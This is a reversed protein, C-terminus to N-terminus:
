GQVWHCVRGWFTLPARRLFAFAGVGYLALQCALNANFIEAGYMGVITIVGTAFGLVRPLPPLFAAALMAVTAAKMPM